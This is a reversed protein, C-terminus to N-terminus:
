GEKAAAVRRRRREELGLWGFWVVVSTMTLAGALALVDPLLQIGTQRMSSRGLPADQLTIVRVGRRAAGGGGRARKPGAGELRLFRRRVRGGEGGGM